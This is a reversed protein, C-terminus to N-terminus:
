NESYWNKYLEFTFSSKELGYRQLPKTLHRHAKPTPVYLGLDLQRKRPLFIKTASADKFKCKECQFGKNRGESKLRKGCIKCLPNFVDFVEALELVLLYEVNLVKPHKSTPKRIGCGIEIKDGVELKAAVNALGTPEYIAAIMSASSDDVTFLVHGGKVAQPMEKVTCRIRGASYAKADKMVLEKQLHMNTGQNSRFVMYGDLTEEPQLAALACVVTDPREGRVGCFVPDPGHPAILVRNHNKDYNNFTNPFTDKSCQIVKQGDIVRPAGCNEQKRYAIAEFTYDGNELLCGMAALSGVLGQGNGYMFYQVHNEKAIKEAKQRSLIDSMASASFTTLADPTREGLFFAVAPNAGAGIASGEQVFQKVGDIVGAPDNTRIRLCVAGNGRTKWPVNPNLRILLPYDALHAGMRNLHGAVKFALHTTCRGVRSDTDDFAIHLLPENEM